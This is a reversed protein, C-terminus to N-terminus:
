TVNEEKKEGSEADSELSLFEIGHCDDIEIGPAPEIGDLCFLEWHLYIIDKYSMEALTERDQFHTGVAIRNGSVYEVARKHIYDGKSVHDLDYFRIDPLAGDNLWPMYGAIKRRTYDKMINYVGEILEDRSFVDKMRYMDDMQATFDNHMQLQQPMIVKDYQVGLASDEKIKDSLQEMGCAILDHSSVCDEIAEGVDGGSERIMMQPLPLCPLSYLVLLRSEKRPDKVHCRFLYGDDLLELIKKKANSTQIANADVTVCANDSSSPDVVNDSVDANTLDSM